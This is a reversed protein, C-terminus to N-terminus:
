TFTVKEKLKYFLGFDLMLEKYVKNGLRAGLHFVIFEKTKISGHFKVGLKRLLFSTGGNKFVGGSDKIEAWVSGHSGREVIYSCLLHGDILFLRKNLEKEIEIKSM